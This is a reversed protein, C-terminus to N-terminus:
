VLGPGTVYAPAQVRAEAALGVENCAGQMRRAAVRHDSQVRPMRWAGTRRDDRAEGIRDGGELVRGDDGLLATRVHEASALTCLRSQDDVLRCMRTGAVLQMLGERCARDCM